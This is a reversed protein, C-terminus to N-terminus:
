PAKAPAASVTAGDIRIVIQNVANPKVPLTAHWNAHEIDQFAAVVGIARTEATLKKSSLPRSEGPMVVLEQREILEDRLTEREHEYLSLFDATDFSATGKLLYIRVVVPSAHRQTGVNIEKSATITGALTADSPKFVSSCAWVLCVSALLATRRRAGAPGRRALTRV